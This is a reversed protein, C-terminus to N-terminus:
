LSGWCCSLAVRYPFHLLGGLTWLAGFNWTWSWYNDSSCRRLQGRLSLLHSRKNMSNSLLCLERCTSEHGADLRVSLQLEDKSPQTGRQLQPYGKDKPVFFQCYHHRRSFAIMIFRLLLENTSDIAAVKFQWCSRVKPIAFCTLCPRCEKM